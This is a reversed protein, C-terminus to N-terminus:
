EGRLPRALLIERAEAVSVRTETVAAVMTALPMDIGKERAVRTVAQATKIGEITQGPEPTRGSGFALGARYNRSKESTATLILDGFGSLGSLTDPQAGLGMACRQMEAFGRTIVAARASEGLGAGMAMGAALAIVNKLAGGLEAGLVDQTRYLRLTDCSLDAQLKTGRAEDACALTLATPLGRAIDDAFSPGTLVSPTVDPYIDRILATPGQLRELDLGKCCVVLDRGALWPQSVLASRLSQMPVALLVPGAAPGEAVAVSRPLQIGPLYRGNQRTARLERLDGRGILSVPRGDQALAIALATGYAGAGLVTVSM